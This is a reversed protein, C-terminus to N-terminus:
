YVWDANTTVYKYTRLVSEGLELEDLLSKPCRSLVEEREEQGVRHVPNFNGQLSCVLQTPLFMDFAMRGLTYLPDGGPTQGLTGFYTAKSLTLWMGEMRNNSDYPDHGALLTLSQQQQQQQEYEQVLPLLADEVMKTDVNGACCALAHFLADKLTELSAPPQQLVFTPISTDHHHHQYNHQEPFAESPSNFTLPSPQEDRLVVYPRLPVPRLVKVQMPAASHLSQSSTAQTDSDSFPNTSREMYNGTHGTEQQMTWKRHWEMADERACTLEQSDMPLGTADALSQMNMLSSTMSLTSLAECQAAKNNSSRFAIPRHLVIVDEQHHHHNHHHNDHTNNTTAM